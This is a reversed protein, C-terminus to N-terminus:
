RNVTIRNDLCYKYDLAKYGNWIAMEDIAKFYQNAHQSIITVGKELVLMQPNGYREIIDKVYRCSKHFMNHIEKPILLLNSIDNNNRNWDLHHIVMDDDFTIGYYDKYFKRYDFQTTKKKM